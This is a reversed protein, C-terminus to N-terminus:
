RSSPQRPATRTTRTTRRTSSRRTSAAQKARKKLASLKADDAGTPRFSASVDITLGDRVDVAFECREGRALPISRQQVREVYIKSTSGVPTADDEPEPEPKPEPEPEPEPELGPEPEPEVKGAVPEAEAEAGADMAGM